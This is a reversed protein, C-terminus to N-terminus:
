AKRRARFEDCSGLPTPRECCTRWQCAKCLESESVIIKSAAM